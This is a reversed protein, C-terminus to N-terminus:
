RRIVTKEAAEGTQLWQEYRRRYEAKYDKVANEYGYIHKPKGKFEM